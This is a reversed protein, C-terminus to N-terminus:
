PTVSGWRERTCSRKTGPSRRQGPSGGVGAGSAAGGATGRWWQSDETLTGSEERPVWVPYQLPGALSLRDSSVALKWLVSLRGNTSLVARM